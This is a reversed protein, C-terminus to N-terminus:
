RLARYQNQRSQCCRSQPQAATIFSLRAPGFSRTLGKAVDKSQFRRMEQSPTSTANGNGRQDLSLQFSKGAQGDEKRSSKHCIRQFRNYFNRDRRRMGSVNAAIIQDDNKKRASSEDPSILCRRWPFPRHPSPRRQCRAAAAPLRTQRLKDGCWIAGGGYKM